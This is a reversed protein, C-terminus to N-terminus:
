GRRRRLDNGTGQLFDPVDAFFAYTIEDRGNMLNKIYFAQQKKKWIISVNISHVKMILTSKTSILNSVGIVKM